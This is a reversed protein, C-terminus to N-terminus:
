ARSEIEKILAEIGRKREISIDQTLLNRLEPIFYSPDISGLFEARSHSSLKRMTKYDTKLSDFKTLEAEKESIGDLEAIASQISEKSEPTTASALQDRLYSIVDPVSPLLEMARTSLNSDNDHKARVREREELVKGLQKKREKDPEKEFAEQLDAETTRVELEIMRTTIKNRRSEAERTKRAVECLEPYDAITDPNEIMGTEDEVLVVVIEDKSLSNFIGFPTTQSLEDLVQKAANIEDQKVDNIFEQLKPSLHKHMIKETRSRDSEDGGLGLNFVGYMYYEFIIDKHQYGLWELADLIDGDPFSNAISELLDHISVDFASLLLIENASPNPNTLPDDYGVERSAMYEIVQEKTVDQAFVHEIELGFEDIIEKRRTKKFHNLGNECRISEKTNRQIEPTLGQLAKNDFYIISNDITQTECTIDNWSIRNGSLYCLAEKSHPFLWLGVDGAICRIDGRLKKAQVELSKAMTVRLDALEEGFESVVCLDPKLKEIVCLTGLIGLHNEYFAKMKWDTDNILEFEKRKMSGLHSILISIRQTEDESSIDIGFKQLLSENKKATEFTWGTDGTMYINRGSVKLCLGLAYKATVIEDHNTFLAVLELDLDAERGPIRYSQGPSMVVVNGIVNFSSEEQAKSLDLYNSFKKFAGINLFLDIRKQLRYERHHSNREYLLTLLSEFDNTHDNHAHTILIGDIDDLCFGALGFNHIFNYGPDIVLGYGRNVEPGNSPVSLFYGGGISYQSVAELKRTSIPLSPTYSNWKRLVVFFPIGGLPIRRYSSIFEARKDEQEAMADLFDLYKEQSLKAAIDHASKKLFDHLASEKDETM